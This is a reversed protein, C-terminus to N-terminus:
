GLSEKIQQLDNLMFGLVSAMPSIAITQRNPNSDKGFIRESQRRERARPLESQQRVTEIAGQVGDLPFREPLVDVKLEYSQDLVVENGEIHM